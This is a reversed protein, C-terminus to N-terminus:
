WYILVHGSVNKRTKFFRWGNEETLQVGAFEGNVYPDHPNLLVSPNNEADPYPFIILEADDLGPKVGPGGPVYLIDTADAQAYTRWAQLALRRTDAWVLGAAPAVFEVDMGPLNALVEYGGVIDLATFGDRLLISLRM